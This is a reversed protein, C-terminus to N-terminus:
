SVASISWDGHNKTCRFISLYQHILVVNVNKYKYIVVGPFISFDLLDLKSLLYPLMGADKARELVSDLDRAYKSSTLNAGIDVLVFSSTLDDEIKKLKMAQISESLAEAAPETSKSSGEDNSTDAMRSYQSILVLARNCSSPTRTSRFLALLM